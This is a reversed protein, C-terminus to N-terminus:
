YKDELNTFLRLFGSKVGGKEDDQISLIHQDWDTIKKVSSFVKEKRKVVRVRRDDASCIKLIKRSQYGLRGAQNECHLCDCERGCEVGKAFCECYKKKCRSRKCTCGKVEWIDLKEVKKKHSKKKEPEAGGGRGGPINRCDKCSCNEGCFRGEALCDCYMKKCQTKRCNCRRNMKELKRRESSGGIDENIVGLIKVNRWNGAGGKEQLREDEEELIEELPDPLYSKSISSCSPKGYDVYELTERDSGCNEFDREQYEENEEPNEDLPNPFSPKMISSCRLNKYYEDEIMEDECYKGQYEENEEPNRKLIEEPLHPDAVSSCWKKEYYVCELTEDGPDYPEERPVTTSQDYYLPALSYNDQSDLLDHSQFVETFDSLNPPLLPSLKEKCFDLFNLNNM